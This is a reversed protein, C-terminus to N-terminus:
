RPGPAPRWHPTARTSAGSVRRVRLVTTARREGAPATGDDVVERTENCSGAWQRGFGGGPPKDVPTMCFCSRSWAPPRSAAPTHASQCRSSAPRHFLSPATAPMGFATACLNGLSRRSTDQTSPDRCRGFEAQRRAGSLGRLLGPSRLKVGGPRERGSGSSPHVDEGGQWRKSRAIRLTFTRCTWNRRDM